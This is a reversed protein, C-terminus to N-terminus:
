CDLNEGILCQVEYLASHQSESGLSRKVASILLVLYFIRFMEEGSKITEGGNNEISDLSHLHLLLPKTIMADVRSFNKLYFTNM